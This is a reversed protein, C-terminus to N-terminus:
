ASSLIIINYYICSEFFWLMLELWFITFIPNVRAWLDVTNRDIFSTAMQAFSIKKRNIIFRYYLTSVNQRLSVYSLYCLVQRFSYINLREFKVWIWLFLLSYTLGFYINKKDGICWWNITCSLASSEINIVADTISCKLFHFM